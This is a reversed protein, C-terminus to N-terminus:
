RRQVTAFVRAVIGLQVVSREPAAPYGKRSRSLATSRHVRYRRPRPRRLRSRRVRAGPEHLEAPTDENRFRLDALVGVLGVLRDM